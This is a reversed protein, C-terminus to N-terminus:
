IFISILNPNTTRSLATYVVERSMRDIEYVSLNENITEGQAKHTTIGGVKKATENTFCIKRNNDDKDGIKKTQNKFYSKVHDTREQHQHTDFSLLKNLFTDYDKGYRAKEHWDIKFQNYECLELFINTDMINVNINISNFNCQNSDGIFIFKINDNNRRLYQLVNLLHMNLRSCEDIILYDVNKFERLIHNLSADNCAILSNITQSGNNKADTISTSSIKYSLKNRELYPIIVNKVTHSKGYGARANIAFSQEFDLLEKINTHYKIEQKPKIIPEPTQIETHEWTFNSIEPKVAVGYKSLKANIENAFKPMDDSLKHNFTISDTYVKKVKIDPYLKIVECYIQYIQYRAYSIIALYAYLGSSQVLYNNHLKVNTDNMEIKANELKSYEDYLAQKEEPTNYEKTAQKRKGDEGKYTAFMHADNISVTEGLDNYKEYLAQAEDNNCKYHTSKYKITQALVGSFLTDMMKREKRQEKTYPKENFYEFCNYPIHKYLVKIKKQLKLMLIIDGYIWLKNQTGYLINYIDEKNDWVIYYFGKRLIKDNDTFITTEELGNSVPLVCKENYLIGQYCSNIDLAQVLKVNEDNNFYRVPRIQCTDFFDINSHSFSSRLFKLKYDITEFFNKTKYNVGDIMKSNNYYIEPTKAEIFKDNDLEVIKKPNKNFSSGNNLILVYMHEDHIMISLTKAYETQKQLQESDLIFVNLNYNIKNMMETLQIYTPTKVEDLLNKIIAYESKLLKKQLFNPVCFDMVDYKITHYTELDDYIVKRLKINGFISRYNARNGEVNYNYIYRGTRPNVLQPATTIPHFRRNIIYWSASTQFINLLMNDTAVAAAVDFLRYTQALSGDLRYNALKPRDLILCALVLAEDSNRINIEYRQQRGLSQYSIFNQNVKNFNFRAPNLVGNLSNDNILNRMAERMLIITQRNAINREEEPDLSFINREFSPM